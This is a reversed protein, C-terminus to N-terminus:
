PGALESAKATRGVTRFVLYQASGAPDHKRKRWESRTLARLPIVVCATLPKTLLLGSREIKTVLSEDPAPLRSARYLRFAIHAADLALRLLVHRWGLLKRTVSPGSAALFEIGGWFQSSFFAEALEFGYSAFLAELESSAVRRLHGDEDHPFRPENDLTEKVDSYRGVLREEFSGENRCPLSACIWRDSLRAMEAVAEELSLVHELVHYSFVLDFTRDDFPAESGDFVVFSAGPHTAAAREVATSSVDAGTLEASPFRELLTPVWAGRGSGFDLVKHVTESPISTLVETVREKELSSHEEMYAGSYRDDYYLRLSETDRPIEPMSADAYLSRPRRITNRVPGRTERATDRASRPRTGWWMGPSRSWSVGSCNSAMTIATSSSWGPDRFSGAEKNWLRPGRM